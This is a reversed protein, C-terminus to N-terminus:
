YKIIAKKWNRSWHKDTTVHNERVYKIVNNSFDDNDFMIDRRVVIGEIEGGLRSGDSMLIEIINKLEEETYVVGRYLLPVSELGLMNIYEMAVDWNLFTDDKRVGFAYFPSTLNQYEISHIAEMGEGFIYVDGPINYGINYHLERLKIDWPNQTYTAHSRGYVGGNTLASNSGDLKETIIIDEGLFNSIDDCIRDDNTAGPSFRFHPTRPYKKSEM